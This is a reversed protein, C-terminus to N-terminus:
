RHRAGRGGNLRASVTEVGPGHVQPLVSARGCAVMLVDIGRGCVDPGAGWRWDLDEPVCYRAWSRGTPRRSLARSIPPSLAYTGGPVCAPYRWSIRTWARSCTRSPGDTGRPHPSSPRRTWARWRVRATRRWTPRTGLSGVGRGRTPTM